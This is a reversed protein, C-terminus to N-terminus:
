VSLQLVQKYVNVTVNYFDNLCYLSIESVDFRIVIIVTLIIVTKAV